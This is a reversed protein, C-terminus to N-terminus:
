DGGKAATKSGVPQRTFKCSDSSLDEDQVKGLAMEKVLCYSKRFCLCFWFWVM